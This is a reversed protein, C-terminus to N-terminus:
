VTHMSRSLFDLQELHPRSILNCLWYFTVIFFLIIINQVKKAVNVFAGINIDYM